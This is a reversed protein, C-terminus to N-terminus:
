RKIHLLSFGRWIRNWNLFWWYWYNFWGYRCIWKHTSTEWKTNENKKAKTKRAILEKADIELM